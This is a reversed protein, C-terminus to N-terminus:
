CWDQGAADQPIVARRPGLEVVPGTLALGRATLTFRCSGVRGEVQYCFLRVARGIRSLPSALHVSHAALLGAPNPGGFAM